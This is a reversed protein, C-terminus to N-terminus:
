SGAKASSVGSMAQAGAAALKLGGTLWNDHQIRSLMSNAESVNSNHRSELNALTRDNKLESQMASDLLLTEVSGSDLSLGAEGATARTRGAERRAARMNDFLEGTAEARAEDNAVKTQQRIAKEQVKAAHNQTVIGAATSAVMTVGVIVSATIPDCM